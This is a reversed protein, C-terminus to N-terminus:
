IVAQAHRTVNCGISVACALSAIHSAYVNISCSLATVTGGLGQPGVGSKNIMKVIDKEMKEYFENNNKQNLPRLLATKSLFVAKEATGGLGVGVIVPPCPNSGANVVTQCIWECIKEKSHSPNFMKLASMNESGGGKPAVIIKINQGSVIRTHIVAPTNDNTNIRDFPDYVISKRLYGKEYGKRVGENIADEFDGGILHVDQGIEAFVVAFGTDQCIPMQEKAAIDCNEIMEDFIKKGLPSKEKERGKFFAERIDCPLFYNSKICLEEVIKTIECVNVTRM